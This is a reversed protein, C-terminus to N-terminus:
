RRLRSRVAGRSHLTALRFRLLAPNLNPLPEPATHPEHQLAELERAARNDHLEALRAANLEKTKFGTAARCYVCRALGEWMGRWDKKAVFRHQCPPKGSTGELVVIAGDVWRASSWSGAGGQVSRVLEAGKHALRRSM